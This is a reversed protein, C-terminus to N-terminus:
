TKWKTGHGSKKWRRMAQAPRPSISRFRVATIAPERIDRSLSRARRVEAIPGTIIIPKASFLDRVDKPYVESVALGHWDIAINTLVPSHVREYFRDAAAQAEGPATVFEVDGHGEEAMKTLLFRNVSTGIGFSFVRAESHKKIEAIIDADNGVYGDTMFCVVRIPDAEMPKDAGADDGLATRIAKMM